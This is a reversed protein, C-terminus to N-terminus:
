FVGCYVQAKQTEELKHKLQQLLREKQEIEKQFSFAWKIFMAETLSRHCMHVAFLVGPPWSPLWVEGQM